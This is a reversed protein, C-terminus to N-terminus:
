CCSKHCAVVFVFVACGPVIFCTFLVSYLSALVRARVRPSIFRVFGALFCFGSEFGLFVCSQNQFM